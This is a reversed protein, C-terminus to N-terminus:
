EACDADPPECRLSSPNWFASKNRTFVASATQGLRLHLELRITERSSGQCVVAHDLISAAVESSLGHEADLEQRLAEELRSLPVDPSETERERQHLAEMQRRLAAIRDNFGDNREKFEQVAVAGATCLELLREKKDELQRLQSQMHALEGACDKRRQAEAVSDLVLRVIQRQNKM